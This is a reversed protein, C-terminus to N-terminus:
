LHFVFYKFMRDVAPGAHLPGVTMGQDRKWAFTGISVDSWQCTNQEFTCDACVQEDYGNACDPIFNSYSM